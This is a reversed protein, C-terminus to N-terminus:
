LCWKTWVGSLGGHNQSDSFTRFWSLGHYVVLHQTVGGGPWRHQLPPCTPRDAWCVPIIMGLHSTAPTLKNLHQSSRGHGIRQTSVSVLIILLPHHWCFLFRPNRTLHMFIITKKYVSKSRSELLAALIPVSCSPVVPFTSAGFGIDLKSIHQISGDMKAPHRCCWQYQVLEVRIFILMQNPWLWEQQNYRRKFGWEPWLMHFNTLNSRHFIVHSASSSVKSNNFPKLFGCCTTFVRGDTVQRQPHQLLLFHNFHLQSWSECNPNIGEMQIWKDNKFSHKVLESKSWNWAAPNKWLLPGNKRLVKAVKCSSTPLCVRIRPITM